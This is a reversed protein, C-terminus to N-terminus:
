SDSSTTSDNSSRTKEREHKFDSLLDDATLGNEALLANFEVITQQLAEFDLNNPSLKIPIYFGIRHGHSTVTIPSTGCSTYKHINARFERIGVSKLPREQM